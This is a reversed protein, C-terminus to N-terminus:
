SQFAKVDVDRETDPFAAIAVEIGEGITLGCDGVIDLGKQLFGILIDNTMRINRLVLLIQNQGWCCRVFLFLKEVALRSLTSHPAIGVRGELGEIDAAAGGAEEARLVELGEDGAEGTNKAGGIWRYPRTQFEGAGVPLIVIIDTREGRTAFDRSHRPLSLCLSPATRLKLSRILTDRKTM